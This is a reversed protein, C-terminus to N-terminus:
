RMEKGLFISKGMESFVDIGLNAADEAIAGILQTFSFNTHLTMKGDVYKMQANKKLYRRMTSAIVKYGGKLQSIDGDVATEFAKLMKSSFVNRATYQIEEMTLNEKRLYDLTRQRIATDTQVQKASAMQGYAQAAQGGINGYQMAAGAPTSAGGLNAALIPNVGAARLDAVQRQISTNSMDKQFAMQDKISKATSKNALHQGIISGGAAILAAKIM